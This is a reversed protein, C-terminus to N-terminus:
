DGTVWVGSPYPCYIVNEYYANYATASNNGSVNNQRDLKVIMTTPNPFSMVPYFYTQSYSVGGGGIKYAAYYPFASRCSIFVNNMDLGAPINIEYTAAPNNRVDVGGYMSGVVQLYGRMADFVLEGKSNFAQAGFSCPRMKSMTYICYEVIFTPHDSGVMLELEWEDRDRYYVLQLKAKFPKGSPSRTFLMLDGVIDVYNLGDAFGLAQFNKFVKVIHTTRYIFNNGDIVVFVPAVVGSTIASDRYLFKAVNYQDDIVVNNNANRIELYKAM